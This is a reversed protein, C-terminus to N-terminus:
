NFFNRPKSNITKQLESIYSIALNVSIEFCRIIKTKDHSKKLQKVIEFSFGKIAYSEAALKLSRLTIFQTKAADIKSREIDVLSESFKASFFHLKSLLSYSEMIVTTEDPNVTVANYLLTEARRM